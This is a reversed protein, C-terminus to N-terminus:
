SLRGRPSRRDRGAAGSRIVVMRWPTDVALQPGELVLRPEDRHRLGSAVVHPAAVRDLSEALVDHRGAEPTRGFIGYTHEGPRHERETLSAEPVGTRPVQRPGRFPVNDLVLKRGPGAPVGRSWSRASRFVRFTPPRTMALRSSCSLWIVTVTASVPSM